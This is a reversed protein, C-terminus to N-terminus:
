DSEIRHTIRHVQNERRRNNDEWPETRYLLEPIALRFDTGDRGICYVAHAGCAPYHAKEYDTGQHSFYYHM